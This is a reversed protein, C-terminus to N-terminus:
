NRRWRRNGNPDIYEAGPPIADYDSDNQMKITMGNRKLWEVAGQQGLGNIAGRFQEATVVPGAQQVPAQMPAPAELNLASRRRVNGAEDVYDSAYKNSIVSQMASTFEPTGPQYGADVLERAIGSVQQGGDKEIARVMLRTNAIWQPDFQQPATSTDIGYQQAIALRQQYTADDNVGDLLRGIIGVQELQRSQAQQQGQAMRAREQMVFGPDYQALANLGQENPNQAYAALANMGERERRMKQGERYADLINGQPRAVTLGLGWNVAM